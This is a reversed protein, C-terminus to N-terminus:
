TRGAEARRQTSQSRQSVSKRRLLLVVIAGAFVLFGVAQVALPWKPPAYELIVEHMGPELYVGMFIFDVRLVDGEKGDIRVRWDPDYKDAVRLIVPSTSSARLKIRGPRYNLVQIQGGSSGSSSQQKLSFEPAILVKEFLRYDASGLRRLTETDDVKEWAGILTFRPASRLLRMIVHQGPQQVSAPVVEVSAAAPKGHWLLPKVNYAFVLEFANKMAPDGQFQGWVQAPALVFGVASLQWLRLPDRVAAFFRKYDAPMRPMQTVNITKIGHYPFLYTLWNNYFGDQAVLAVRHQNQDSKLVRIVDNEQFAKLPMAKVYHRSLVYADAAVIVVLLWPIINRLYQNRLKRGCYLWIFVGACVTMLAAHWLATIKNQIIVEALKGWGTAGLRYVLSNVDVMLALARLALVLAIVFLVGIFWKTWRPIQRKTLTTEPPINKDSEEKKMRRKAMNGSKGKADDRSM